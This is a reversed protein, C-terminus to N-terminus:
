RVNEASHLVVKEAAFRITAHSKEDGWRCSKFGAAEDCSAPAGLISTVESYSMGTKVKAYNEPTLKSCGAAALIVAALLFTTRM